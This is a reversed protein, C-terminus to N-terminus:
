VMRSGPTRHYHSRLTWAAQSKESGWLVAPSLRWVGAERKIREADKELVYLLGDPDHDGYKNYVIPIQIAEIEFSRIKGRCPYECLEMRMVQREARIAATESLSQGGETCPGGFSATYYFRDPM